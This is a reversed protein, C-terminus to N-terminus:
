TKLTAGHGCLNLEALTSLRPDFERLNRDCRFEWALMPCDVYTLYTPTSGM